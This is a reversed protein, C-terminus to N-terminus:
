SNTIGDDIHNRMRILQEQNVFIKLFPAHGKNIGRTRLIRSLRAGEGPTGALYFEVLQYGM